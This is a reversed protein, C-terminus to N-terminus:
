TESCDNHVLYRLDLIRHRLRTEEGIQGDEGPLFPLPKGLVNLVDVQTVAM